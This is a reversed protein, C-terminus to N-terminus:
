MMVKIREECDPCKVYSEYENTGTQTYVTDEKSYTFVCCCNPCMTKKFKGHKIVKIM